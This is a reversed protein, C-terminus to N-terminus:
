LYNIESLYHELVLTTNVFRCSSFEIAFESKMQASSHICASIWRISKPKEWEQANEFITHDLVYAAKIEDIADKLPDFSSNLITIYYNEVRLM